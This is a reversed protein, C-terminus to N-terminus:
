KSFKMKPNRKVAAMDNGIAMIIHVIAPVIFSGTAYAIVCLLIGLFFAGFAEGPGKYIHALAYVSSNVAIAPLLGFVPVLPFFIFGRFCYEYGILYLIWFLSNLLVRKKTWEKQRVQPYFDISINKTPRIVAVLLFLFIPIFSWLLVHKGAPLTLGSEQAGNKAFLTIIFPVLGLFLFGIFKQIYVTWEQSTSSPGIKKAVASVLRTRDSFLYIMYGITFVTLNLWLNTQTSEFYDLVTNM